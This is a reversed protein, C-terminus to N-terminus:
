PKDAPRPASERAGPASERAGPPLPSVMREGFVLIALDRGSGRLTVGWKRGIRILAGVRPGFKKDDLYSCVTGALFIGVLLALNFLVFSVGVAALNPNRKAWEVLANVTESDM